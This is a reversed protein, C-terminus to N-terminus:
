RAVARRPTRPHEANQHALSVRVHVHRVPLGVMMTLFERVRREVTPGLVTLDAAADVSAECDVALVAGARHSVRARLEVVGPIESTSRRVIDDLPGLLVSTGGPGSSRLPLARGRRRWPDLISGLVRFESLFLLLALVAVVVAGGVVFPKVRMAITALDHTVGSVPPYSWRSVVERPKLLGGCLLATLIAAAIVALALAMTLLRNFIKM